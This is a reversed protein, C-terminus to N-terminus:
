QAKGTQIKLLLIRDLDIKRIFDGKVLAMM